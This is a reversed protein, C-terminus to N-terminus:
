WARRHPGFFEFVQHEKGESDIVWARYENHHASRVCYMGGYRRLFDGTAADDIAHHMAWQATYAIQCKRSCFVHDDKDLIAFEGESDDGEERGYAYRYCNQCEFHWGHALQWERLSGEFGDLQPYRRLERVEMYDLDLEGAIRARADNRDACWVIHQHGDGDGGIWAKSPSGGAGAGGQKRKTACTVPQVSTPSELSTQTMSM